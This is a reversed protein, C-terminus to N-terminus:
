KTGAMSISSHCVCMTAGHRATSAEVVGRYKMAPYDNITVLPLKGEASAPSDLIQRLTQLGYFAGREDYGLIDIGKPTITLLYAGSVDKVGAKAAKAADYDINVKVGKKNPSLFGAADTFSKKRDNIKFGNSFDVVSQAHIDLHQPTPNIIIGKHDLKQGPVSNFEQVESRQSSLDFADDQAMASPAFAMLAATPLLLTIFNM